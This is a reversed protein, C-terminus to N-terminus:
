LRRRGSKGLLRLDDETDLMQKEVEKYQIFELVLFVSANNVTSMELPSGNLRTLQFEYSGNINRKASPPFVYRINQTFDDSISGVSYVTATHTRNTSRIAALFGGSSGVLSDSSVQFSSGFQDTGGNTPAILSLIQCGSAVVRIEDVLFPVIIVKRYSTTSNSTCDWTVTVTRSQNAIQSTM